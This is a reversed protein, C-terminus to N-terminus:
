WNESLRSCFALASIGPTGVLLPEITHRAAVAASVIETM